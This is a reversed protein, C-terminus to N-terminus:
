LINGQHTNHSNMRDCAHVRLCSPSGCGFEHKDVHYSYYVDRSTLRKCGQRICRMEQTATIDTKYKMLAEALQASAGERHLTCVNWTEFRLDYDKLRKGQYEVKSPIKQFELTNAKM